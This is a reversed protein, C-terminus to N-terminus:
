MVQARESCYVSERTTIGPSRQGTARLYSRLDGVPSQVCMGQIAFCIGLWQVMLSTGAQTKKLGCSCFSNQDWAWILTLKHTCIKVSPTKNRQIKEKLFCSFKEYRKGEDEIKVIM